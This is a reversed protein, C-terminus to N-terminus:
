LKKPMKGLVVFDIILIFFVFQIIYHITLPVVIVNKLVDLKLSANLKTEDCIKKSNESEVQDAKSEPTDFYDKLTRYKHFDDPISPITIKEICQTYVNEVQQTGTNYVSVVFIIIYIIIFGRFWWKQTLFGHKEQNYFPFLIKKINM